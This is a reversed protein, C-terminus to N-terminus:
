SKVFIPCMCESGLAYTSTGAHWSEKSSRAMHVCSWGWVPRQSQHTTPGFFRAQLQVIRLFLYIKFPIRLSVFIAGRMFLTVIRLCHAITTPGVGSRFVVSLVMLLIRTCRRIIADDVTFKGVPKDVRTKRCGAADSCMPQCDRLM